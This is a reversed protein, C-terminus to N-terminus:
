LENKTENNLERLSRHQRKDHAPIIKWSTEKELKGPITFGAAKKHGGGGFKSAIEELDVEENRTRFSGKVNGHEDEHLLVTFKTEPVCNIFDVAGSLEDIEANCEDFDAKTVVSMAVGDKNIKLNDLVKGWLKLTSVPTTNFLNRSVDVVRGGAQLLDSAIKLTEPTTNQHMFSGTDNYIGTLLATAIQPTLKYGAFKFFKYIIMTTSAAQSDVMNITGFNDNSAHHDINIVPVDGKFIDPYKEHYNTMYSAGADSVILLDYDRFDFEEIFDRIDPMYAYREPIEDICAMQVDKNQEALVRKLAICAGITDGDPKRHAILLIKEAKNIQRKAQQFHAEM